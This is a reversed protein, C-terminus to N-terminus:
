RAQAEDEQRGFMADALRHEEDGDGARAMEVEVVGQALGRTKLGVIELGVARGREDVDLLVGPAVEETKAVKGQGLEVYAVDEGYTIKM